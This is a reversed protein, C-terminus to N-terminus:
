TTTQGGPGTRGRLREVRLLHHLEEDPDEESQLWQILNWFVVPIFACGSIFWMMGTSLQQDASLSLGTGAHHTFAHYWSAHSLGVLYALVWIAWMSVAALAVRHPRSLRPVLPPSEVLELWLGTGLVVLTVAEVALLWPHRILANVSAPIRWLIAGALYLFFFCASRLAEPHRRRGHALRDVPGPGAVSAAGPGGAAPAAGDTGPVPGGRSALGLRRWPAGIAVLAPIVVGLISYQIAEAFEYRRAETALPPVLCLVLLVIAVVLVVDRLTRHTDTDLPQPSRDSEAGTTV